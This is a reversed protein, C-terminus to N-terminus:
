HSKGLIGFIGRLALVLLVILWIDLLWPGLYGLLDGNHMDRLIQGVSVGDGYLQVEMAKRSAAPMTEPQSWSVGQLSMLEWRDLLFNGRWMGNRTQLVPENYHVGINQIEPPIGAAAGLTDIYEGDKSILILADDTALALIHELAVAGILPRPLSMLPKANIYLQQEVAVIVHGELIFAQDSQLEGIQYHKKLWTSSVKMKDLGLTKEHNLLIASGLWFLVAIAILVQLLRVLLRNALLRM